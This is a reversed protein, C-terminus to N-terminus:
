EVTPLNDLMKKVHETCFADAYLSIFSTLIARTEALYKKKQEPAAKDQQLWLRKKLLGSEYLALMGGDTKKFKKHLQNLSEARLQEDAILKTKALVVNDLLPDKKGMKKLLQDLQGSFSRSHPNLSLFKALRKGSSKAKTRNQPSLLNHLYM